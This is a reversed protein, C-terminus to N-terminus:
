VRQYEAAPRTKRKSIPRPSLPNPTDFDSTNCDFASIFKTTLIQSPGSISSPGQFTSVGNSLSTFRTEKHKPSSMRQTLVNCLHPPAPRTPTPKSFVIGSSVPRSAHYGKSHYDNGPANQQVRGTHLSTGSLPNQFPRKISNLIKGM